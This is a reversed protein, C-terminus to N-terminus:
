RRTTPSELLPPAPSTLLPGRPIRLPKLPKRRATTSFFYSFVPYQISRSFQISFVGASKGKLADIETTITIKHYSIRMHGSWKGVVGLFLDQGSVFFEVGLYAASGTSVALLGPLNELGNILFVRRLELFLNLLYLPRKRPREKSGVSFSM